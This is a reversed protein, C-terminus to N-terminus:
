TIAGNQIKKDYSKLSFYYKQKKANNILADIRRIARSCNGELTKESDNNYRQSDSHIATLAM